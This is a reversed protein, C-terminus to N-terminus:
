KGKLNKRLDEIHNEIGYKICRWGPSSNILLEVISEAINGIAKHQKWSDNDEM